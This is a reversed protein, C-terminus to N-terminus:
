ILRIYTMNEVCCFMAHSQSLKRLFSTTSSNKSQLRSSHQRVGITFICDCRARAHKKSQLLLTSQVILSPGPLPASSLWDRFRTALHWCWRAGARLRQKEHNKKVARYWIGLVVNESEFALPFVRVFLARDFLTSDLRIGHNGASVSLQHQIECRKRMFLLNKCVIMTKNRMHFTRSIQLLSYFSETIFLQFNLM